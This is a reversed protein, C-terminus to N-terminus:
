LVRSFFFWNYLSKRLQRLRYPSSLGVFTEACQHHLSFGTMAWDLFNSAQLTYGEDECCLGLGIILAQFGRPSDSPFEFISLVQTHGPTAAAVISASTWSSHVYWSAKEEERKYWGMEWGIPHFQGCEPCTREGTSSEGVQWDDTCCSWQGGPPSLAKSIMYADNLGPLNM